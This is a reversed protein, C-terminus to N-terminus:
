HRSSAWALIGGFIVFAACVYVLYATEIPTM